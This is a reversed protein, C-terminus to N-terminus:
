RCIAQHIDFILNVDAANLLPNQAIFNQRYACMDTINPGHANYLQQITVGQVRDWNEASNNPAINTNDMLDHYCGYPIWQGGYFWFENEILNDMRYHNGSTISGITNTAEMIGTTTPYQRMAYNTGLFQAWSEGIETNPTWSQGYPNGAVPVADLTEQIFNTWWANGVRSYHSAHSLEHQATQHMRSNYFQPEAAQPVRFTMDPLFSNLFFLLPAVTAASEGDMFNMLLRFTYAPSLAIFSLMPTSANGFDPNGFADIHNATNAWQAYCVMGWPARGINESGSHLDHFYYANLIQSWYRVQTHGRFNFDKGDRMQCPTVWGDIHVSGIIFQTIITYLNRIFTGHTDLPKVNVRPNKAKTGMITGISYRWNIEYYGNADSYATIPIGLFLSWVQMGRVPELRNLQNDWTRVFGHPKKFLCIRIRNLEEESVGAERFAQYQLTTDTDAVKVLTDLREFQVHDGTAFKALLNQNDISTVGYVNGDKLQEAKTEDLAFQDNYIAMNAFPFDMIHVTSDNELALFQEKSLNLPNLKFYVFQQEDGSLGHSRNQSQNHEALTSKAKEVNRLSFPNTTVPLQITAKRLQPTEVTPTESSLEKKCSTFFTTATIAALAWRTLHRIKTSTKKTM